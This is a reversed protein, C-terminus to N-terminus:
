QKVLDSRLLPEWIKTYPEISMVDRRQWISNINSVIYVEQKETHLEYYLNGYKKSSNPALIKLLIPQSSSTELFNKGFVKILTSIRYFSNQGIKSIGREEIGTYWVEKGWPKEIDIPSLEFPTNLNIEAFEINDPLTKSECESLFIKPKAGASDVKIHAYIPQSDWDESVEKVFYGLEPEIVAHPNIYENSSLFTTNMMFLRRYKVNAM